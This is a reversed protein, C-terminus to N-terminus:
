FCYIAIERPPRSIRGSRTVYDEEGPSPTANQDAPADDTISTEDEEDASDIDDENIEANDM